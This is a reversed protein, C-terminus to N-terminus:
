SRGGEVVVEVCGIKTGAVVYKPDRVKVLDVTCGATTRDVM